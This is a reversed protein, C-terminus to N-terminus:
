VSFLKTINITRRLCFLTERGQFQIRVMTPSPFDVLSLPKSGPSELAVIRLELQLGSLLRSHYHM